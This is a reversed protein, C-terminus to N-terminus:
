FDVDEVPDQDECGTVCVTTCLDGDDFQDHDGIEDLHVEDEPHPQPPGQYFPNRYWVDRDSLIWAQTQHQKGVNLAHEADAEQMTAFM